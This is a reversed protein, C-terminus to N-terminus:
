PVPRVVAGPGIICRDGIRVDHMIKAGPYLICQEGIRANAGIYVQPYIFCGAGIVAKPEIICYADIHAPQAIVADEDIVVTPHRFDDEVVIRPHFFMMLKVFALRPNDVVIQGIHGIGDIPAPVVLGTPSPEKKTDFRKPQEVFAVAGPHPADLSCLGFVRADPGVLKGGVLEAAESLTIENGDNLAVKL